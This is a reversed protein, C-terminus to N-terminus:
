RARQPRVPVSEAPPQPAATMLEGAFLRLQDPDLRESSKGFVRNMLVALQDSLRKNDRQLQPVGAAVEKLLEYEAITINITDLQEATAM